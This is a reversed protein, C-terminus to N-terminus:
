KKVITFEVRRNLKRTEPNANSAIPKMPGWGKGAIRNKKIGKNTLYEIVKDVRQQSLEVNPNFAGQNDTHGEVLIEITPNDRLMHYVAELDQESGPILNTTGREFLVHKLAITNGVELPELYFNQAISQGSEITILTDYELFDQASIIASYDGADLNSSFKGNSASINFTGKESIMEISGSVPDDNRANYIMGSFNIDLTQEQTEPEAVIPTPEEEIVAIAPAEQVTDAPAEYDEPFSIRVTKIDGYGDSNQTSVVVAFDGEPLFSFSTESGVTNLPAGMNVPVSWNKWSNDLRKSVFIDMGGSGGHGNSAFYITEGDPAIFPTLEQYRTNLVAGMNRLDTWSGDAKLKTFYLDEVGYSGFTQLSFVIVGGSPAISASRFEWQSKFYPIEVNQPTGWGDGSKQSVSFGDKGTAGYHYNLLMTSGQNAFGIVSNSRENNLQKAALQAPAWSGDSFRTSVWIDGNDKLGGTMGSYGRRTFYLRQGDTSLVPSEEYYKSNINNGVSIQESEVQVIQSHASFYSFILVLVATARM